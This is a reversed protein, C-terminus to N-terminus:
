KRRVGGKACKFHFHHENRSWRQDATTKTVKVMQREGRNEISGCCYHCKPVKGKESVKRLHIGQTSRPKKKLGEQNYAALKETEKQKRSGKQTGGEIDNILINANEENSVTVGVVDKYVKAWADVEGLKGEEKINDLGLLRDISDNGTSQLDEVDDDDPNGVEVGVLETAMPDQRLGGSQLGIPAPDTINPLKKGNAIYTSYLARADM